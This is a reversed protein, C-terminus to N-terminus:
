EFHNFHLLLYKLDNNFLFYNPFTLFHHKNSHCLNSWSYFTMIYLYLYRNHFFSSHLNLLWFLYLLWTMRTNDFSICFDFWFHSFVSQSNVTLWIRFTKAFYQKWHHCTPINVGDSCSSRFIVSKCWFLHRTHSTSNKFHKTNTHQHTTNTHQPQHLYQLSM